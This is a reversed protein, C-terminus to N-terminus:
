RFPTPSAVGLRCLYRFTTYYRLDSDWTKLGDSLQETTPGVRSAAEKAMAAQQAAECEARTAYSTVEYVPGAIRLPGNVGYIGIDRWLVTTESSIMGAPASMPKAMYMQDSAPATPSGLGRVCGLTVMAVATALAIPGTCKWM